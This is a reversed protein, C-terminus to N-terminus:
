RTRRYLASVGKVSELIERYVYFLVSNEHIYISHLTKHNLSFDISRTLPPTSSFDSYVFFFEALYQAAFNM